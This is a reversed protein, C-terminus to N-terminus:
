QVKDNVIFYDIMDRLLEHLTCDNREAMGELYNKMDVTINTTVSTWPINELVCNEVFKDPYIKKKLGVQKNIKEIEDLSMEPKPVQKELQQIYSICDRISDLLFENYEKLKEDKEGDTLEFLKSYVIDLKVDYPYNYFENYDM